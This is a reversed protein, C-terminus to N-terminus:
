KWDEEGQGRGMSTRVMAILCSLLYRRAKWMMIFMIFLPKFSLAWLDASLVCFCSSAAWYIAMSSMVFCVDAFASGKLLMETQVATNSLTGYTNYSIRILISKM